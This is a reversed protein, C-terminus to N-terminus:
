GTNGTLRARGEPGDYPWPRTPETGPLPLQGPMEPGDLEAALPSAPELVPVIYRRTAVWRQAGDTRAFILEPEEPVMEWEQDSIVVEGGLKRILLWMAKERFAVEDGDAISVIEPM